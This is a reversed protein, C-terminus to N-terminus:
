SLGPPMHMTESTSGLDTYAHLPLALHNKLTNPGPQVHPHLDDNMTSSGAMIQGSHETIFVHRRTMPQLLCRIGVENSDNNPLNPM